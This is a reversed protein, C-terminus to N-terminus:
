ARTSHSDRILPTSIPYEVLASGRELRDGHVVTRLDSVEQHRTARFQSRLVHSDGATGVPSYRAESPALNGTSGADADLVVCLQLTPRDRPRRRCHQLCDSPGQQEICRFLRMQEIKRPGGVTSGRRSLPSAFRVCSRTARAHKPHQLCDNIPHGDNPIGILVKESEVGEPLREISGQKRTGGVPQGVQSSKLKEVSRGLLEVRFPISECFHRHAHQPCSRPLIRMVAHHLVKNALERCSALCESRKPSTVINASMPRSRFSETVRDHAVERQRVFLKHKGRVRSESEQDIRGFRARRRRLLEHQERAPSLTACRCSLESLNSCTGDAGRSLARM